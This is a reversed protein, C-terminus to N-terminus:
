GLVAELVAGTDSLDPLVTAAGAARLAAADSIGTAVAVIRAGGERAARVDNPADGVLVTTDPTFQVGTAEYVRERAIGVLRPRDWHDDGYGGLGIDVLHDLGFASLKRLANARTNGTLLSSVVDPDDACRRLAEQAGPLIRGRATLEDARRTFEADQAELFLAFEGARGQLGNAECTENFWQWETRGPGRTDIHDTLGSFAAFATSFVEFGIRDVDLLTKDIDWLVLRKGM